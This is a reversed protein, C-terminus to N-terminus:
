LIFLYIKDFLLITYSKNFKYYCISFYLTEFNIERNNYIKGIDKMVEKVLKLTM